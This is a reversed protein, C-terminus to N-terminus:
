RYIVLGTGIGSAMGMAMELARVAASKAKSNPIFLIDGPKLNVDDMKGSLIASLDVPIESRSVVGEKVRLVRADKPAATRDLGEALALAKLASMDHRDAIVFGGSKHVCGVVYILDARPVTILDNPLIRINLEPENGEVIKRTDVSAVSFQGTPDNTTTALPIRGFGRSRTITVVYAADQRLGGAQALIEMLSKTGQLQQVGPTNVAGMVAIPHTHMDTATVTVQPRRIYKELREELKAEVQRITLGGAHLTGALPLKLDGNGDLRFPRESLEELDLGRVEIQDDPGLVYLSSSLSGEGVIAPKVEVSNHEKALAVASIGAFVIILLRQMM